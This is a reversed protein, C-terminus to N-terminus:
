ATSSDIGTLENSRHDHQDHCGGSHAAKLRAFTDAGSQRVSRPRM